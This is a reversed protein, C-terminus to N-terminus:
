TRQIISRLFVVHMLVQFVLLVHKEYDQAYHIQDQYYYRGLYSRIHRTSKPKSSSKCVQLHNQHPDFVHILLWQFIHNEVVLKVFCNKLCYSVSFELFLSKKESIAKLFLSEQSIYSVLSKRELIKKLSRFYHEGYKLLIVQNVQRCM